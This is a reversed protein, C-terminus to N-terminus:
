KVWMILQALFLGSALIYVLVRLAFAEVDQKLKNLM